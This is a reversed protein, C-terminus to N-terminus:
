RFYIAQNTEGFNNPATDVNVYISDTATCYLLISKSDLVGVPVM